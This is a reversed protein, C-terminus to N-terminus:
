ETIAHYQYETDNTQPEAIVRCKLQSLQQTMSTSLLNRSIDLTHLNNIAPCNLLINAGKDTLTGMSLDLVRLSNMLPSKVISKAIVDSYNSSRLGLYKLHSFLKGSIIPKLHNIASEDLLHSEEEYQWIPYYDDNGLWLELYELFPLELTCIQQIIQHSLAYGIELILTKLHEHRMPNFKLGNGSYEYDDNGFGRVQLVELHPYAELIPSMNSLDVDSTKYEYDHM